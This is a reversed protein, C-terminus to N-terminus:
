GCGVGSAWGLWTLWGLLGTVPLAGRGWGVSSWVGLVLMRGISVCGTGLGGDSCGSPFFVVADLARCFVVPLPNILRFMCIGPDICPCIPVLVPVWLTSTLLIIASSSSLLRGGVDCAHGGVLDLGWIVM